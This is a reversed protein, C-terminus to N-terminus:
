FRRQSLDGFALCEQQLAAITGLAESLKGGVVDAIGKLDQQLHRDYQGKTCCARHNFNAAHRTLKCLRARGWHFLNAIHFQGAIATIDDIAHVERCFVACRIRRPHHAGIVLRGGGQIQQAGKCLAPKCVQMLHM